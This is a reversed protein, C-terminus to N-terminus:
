EITLIEAFGTMTFIEMIIENVHTIVMKGQKNMQKQATLIVRLGASSLYNLQAFDLILETIGELNAKLERDLMPSTNSDLRGALSITLKNGDQTKSIHM